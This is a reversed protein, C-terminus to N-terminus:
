KQIDSVDDNLIFSCFVDVKFLRNHLILQNEITYLIKPFSRNHKLYEGVLARDLIEPQFSKPIGCKGDSITQDIEYLKELNEAPDKTMSNLFKSVEIIFSKHFKNQQPPLSFRMLHTQLMELSNAMRLRLFNQM